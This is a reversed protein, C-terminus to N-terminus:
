PLLRSTATEMPCQQRQKLGESLFSSWLDEKAEKSESQPYFVKPLLSVTEREDQKERRCQFTNATTFLTGSYTSTTRQCLTHLLGRQKKKGPKARNM